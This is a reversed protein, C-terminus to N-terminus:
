RRPILDLTITLTTDTHDPNAATEAEYIYGDHAVPNVDDVWDYETEDTLGTLAVEGTAINITGGIGSDNDPVIVGTMDHAVQTEGQMLVFHNVTLGNLGAEPIPITFNQTTEEADTTFSDNLTEGAYPLPIGEVHVEGSEYDITGSIGSDGDEVIVGQGDDHAVQEGEGITSDTFIFTGPEVLYTPSIDFDMETEGLPDMPVSELPDGGQYEDPTQICKTELCLYPGLLEFVAGCGSGAAAMDDLGVANFGIYTNTAGPIAAVDASMDAKDSIRAKFDSLPCLGDNRVFVALSKWKSADIPPIVFVDTIPVTVEFVRRYAGNPQRNSETQVYANAM